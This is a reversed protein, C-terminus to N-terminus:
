PVAGEYKEEVANEHQLIISLYTLTIITFVFAQLFGEFLAFFCTIFFGPVIGILEYILSGSIFKTYLKSIIAGGFINGYLRFSVSVIFSLKGIINLPLMLFFPEFYAELYVSLGKKKLGYYQIYLFCIIGLAFTTNIDTTPEEVWPIIAAINSLFIFCFLSTIFFFHHAYFKGLTQESLDIFNKVLAIIIYRGVGNNNKLLSRVFLLGIFLLGLVIWTAIVTSKNLNFFPHTINFISGLEWHHAQLLDFGSM